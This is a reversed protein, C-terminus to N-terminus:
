KMNKIDDSLDHNCLPCTNNKKLWDLLCKKHFIHECKYFAKIIDVGKFEEICIACETEKRSDYKQIHKYQYEDMEVILEFKKKDFDSLSDINVSAMISNCIDKKNSKNVNYGNNDNNNNNNSSNNWNNINNNNVNNNVSDINSNRISSNGMNSESMASEGLDSDSMGSMASEGLDNDNIRSIKGIRINDMQNNLNRNNIFNINWNHNYNNKWNNNMNLNINIGYNGLIDMAQNFNKATSQSLNNMNTIEKGNIIIRHM